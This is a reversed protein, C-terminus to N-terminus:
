FINCSISTGYIIETNSTSSYVKGIIMEPLDHLDLIRTTILHIPTVNTLLIVYTEFTCNQPVDDTHQMPPGGGLDFRGEAAM